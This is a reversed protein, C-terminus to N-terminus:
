SHTADSDDAIVNDKVDRELTEFIDADFSRSRSLGHRELIEGAAMKAKEQLEHINRQKMHIFYGKEASVSDCTIVVLQGELDVRVGWERNKYTKVLADGINKAIWMEMKAQKVEDLELYNIENYDETIERGFKGNGNPLVLSM